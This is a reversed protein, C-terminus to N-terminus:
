KQRKRETSQQTSQRRWPVENSQPNRYEGHPGSIQRDGIMKYLKHHSGCQKPDPMEHESDTTLAHDGSSGACHLHISIETPKSCSRPGNTDTRTSRLVDSVSVARSPRSRPPLTFKANHTPASAEMMATGTSYVSPVVGDTFVWVGSM